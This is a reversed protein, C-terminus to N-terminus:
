DHFYLNFGCECSHSFNFFSVMGLTSSSTSCSCCLVAPLSVFIICGSYFFIWCNRLFHFMVGIMPGLLEVWLYKHLLFSHVHRCLVQTSFYMTVKNTIARFCFCGLHRDVPFHIFLNYVLCITYYADAIFLLQQRVWHPYTEFYNHQCFSALCFPYVNDSEM